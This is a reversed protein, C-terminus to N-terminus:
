SEEIVEDYDLAEGNKLFELYLKNSAATGLFTGKTVYDYLSVSLNQVNGYWYDVEDNGQIIVTNGFDEKEGIFVVIGSTIIPVLYNDSVSLSYGDKYNEIKEYSLTENFVTNDEVNTIKPIVNGLYKNYLNTIKTFSINQTLVKDKFLTENSSSSNIFIISAFFVILSLLIRTILFNIYKNAKTNKEPVVKKKKNKMQQKVIDLESM